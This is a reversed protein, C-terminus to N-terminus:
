GSEGGEKEVEEGRFRPYRGPVNKPNKSQQLVHIHTKSCKPAVFPHNRTSPKTYDSVKFFRTVPVYTEEM